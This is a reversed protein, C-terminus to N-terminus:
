RAQAPSSNLLFTAMVGSWETGSAMYGLVATSGATNQISDCVRNQNMTSRTASRAGCYAVGTLMYSFVLERPSTTTVPGLLIGQDSNRGSASQDLAKTKM